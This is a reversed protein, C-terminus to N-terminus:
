LDFALASIQAHLDNLQGFTEFLRFTAGFRLYTEFDISIFYTLLNISNLLYVFEESLEVIDGLLLQHRYLGHLLKFHVYSLKVHFNFFQVASDDVDGVMFGPHLDAIQFELEVFLLASVRLGHLDETLLLAVDLLHHDLYLLVRLVDRQQLLREILRRLFHADVLPLQLLLLAHGLLAHGPDASELPFQLSSFVSGVGSLAVQSQDACFVAAEDGGGAHGSRLHVEDLLRPRVQLFAM